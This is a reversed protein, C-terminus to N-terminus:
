PVSRGDFLFILFNTLDLLALVKEGVRLGEWVVRRWERGLRGSEDTNRRRSKSPLLRRPDILSYWQRPLPEESWSSALMRDRVRALLYSPLVSLAIYAIKQFPTLRSDHATSQVLPVIRRTDAYHQEKFMYRYSSRVVKRRICGNMAISSIRCDQDTLREANM